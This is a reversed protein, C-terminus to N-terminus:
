IIITVNFHPSQQQPLPNIQSIGLDETEVLFDRTETLPSQTPIFDAM